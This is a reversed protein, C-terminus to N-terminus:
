IRSDQGTWYADRLETKLVKGNASRPLQEVIDIRKPARYSGLRRKCLDILEDPDIESGHSPEVVALVQEGWDPHPIGIVACDQVSPHSWLVQEVETPYVNLGGSIVIDKIRDTIYLYGHEDVHGIDGTRLWGDDLVEATREPEGYYGKMVLEGSVCIEGSQGPALKQSGNRIEVRILPYPRGCSRLREDTRIQGDDLHELPRLFSIAAFAEVQGYIEMLVPGFVEIARILKETSMPAAGYMLYRLGRLTRSSLDPVELIRYIVTPPLFLETVDHMEIADLVANPEAREIVVVTGGRASAPLSLMGTTHTLPAAVLNVIQEGPEYHLAMLMHSFSTAFTRHTNMVGKPKGTTGGTPFIAVVDDMDYELSPPTIPAGSVWDGLDPHGDKACGLGIARELKPCASRIIGASESLDQHFFLVECDFADILDILAAPPMAPNLPVWVLGARWLGLVTMWAIPDNPSLVAVKTQSPVELELLRHGIQCSLQGADDFTWTRQGKVYAVADPSNRWGRDFFDTIAVM